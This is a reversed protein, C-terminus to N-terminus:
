MISSSVCKVMVKLTLTKPKKTWISSSSAYMFNSVMPIQTAPLFYHQGSVVMLTRGGRLLTNHNRLFSTSKGVVEQLRLDPLRQILVDENSSVDLIATESVEAIEIAEILAM